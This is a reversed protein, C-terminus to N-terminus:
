RTSRSPSSRRAPARRARSSSRSAPSRSANASRISVACRRAPAWRRASAFPTRSCRRRSPRTWRSACRPPGAGCSRAAGSSPRSSGSATSSRATRRAAPGDLRYGMGAAEFAAHRRSVTTDALRLDCVESTGLLIRSPKNPDLEFGRDLDPGEIVIVRRLRATSPQEVPRAVTSLNQAYTPPEEGAGGPERSSRTM